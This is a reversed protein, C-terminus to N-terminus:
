NQWVLQFEADAEPLVAGPFQLRGVQDHDLDRSCNKYERPMLRPGCIPECICTRCLVREQTAFRDPNFLRSSASRDTTLTQKKLIFDPKKGAVTSQIATEM